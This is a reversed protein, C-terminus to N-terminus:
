CTRTIATGYTKQDGYPQNALISDSILVVNNPLGLIMQHIPFMREYTVDVKIVVVDKSFGQGDDGGDEDWRNNLNKDIYTDNTDCKNNSNQDLVLEEAEAAAAETFTKYFRRTIVINASPAITKITTNMRNDVIAQQSEVRAGELSSSRALKNLEGSLVADVYYNYGADMTGMIMVVMPICVLGFETVANGNQDNILKKISRKLVLKKRDAQLVSTPFIPLSTGSNRM